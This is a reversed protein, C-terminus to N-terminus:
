SSELEKLIMDAYLMASTSAGNAALGRGIYADGAKQDAERALIASAGLGGIGAGVIITDYKASM